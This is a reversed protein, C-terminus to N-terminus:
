KVNYTCTYTKGTHNDKATVITQGSSRARLSLQNGSHSVIYPLNNSMNWTVNNAGYLTITVTQGTSVNYETASLHVDASNDHASVKISCTASKGNAARATITASGARHAVLYGNSVSVVSSNSTSWSLSQNATAPSVTASLQLTDGVSMSKSSYSLKVSSVENNGANYYGGGDNYSVIPDGGIYSNQKQRNDANGSNGNNVSDSKSEQSVASREPAHNETQRETNEPREVTSAKPPAKTVVETTPQVTPRHTTPQATTQMSTTPEAIAASAIQEAASYLGQSDSSPATTTEVVVAEDPTAADAVGNRGAKIILAAVIAMIAVAGVAIAVIVPNFKIKRSRRIKSSQVSTSLNDVRSQFINPQVNRLEETPASGDFDDYASTSAAIADNGNYDVGKAMNSLIDQLEISSVQGKVTCYSSYSNSDTEETMVLLKMYPYAQAIKGIAVSAAIGKTPVATDFIIAHPNYKSQLEEVFDTNIRTVTGLVSLNPVNKIVTQYSKIESKDAVILLNM